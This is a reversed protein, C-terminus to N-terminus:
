GSLTQAIKTIEQPSTGRVIVKLLNKSDSIDDVKVTRRLEDLSLDLNLDKITDKLLQNGTLLERTAPKDMVLRDEVTGIELTASAEYLPKSLLSVIASTLVAAGFILLIVRKRKHIISFYDSLFAADNPM